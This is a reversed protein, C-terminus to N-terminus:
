GVASPGSTPGDAPPRLAANLLCRRTRIWRNRAMRCCFDARLPVGSICPSGIGPCAVARGVAFVSQCSHLGGNTSEIEGSAPPTPRLSPSARMRLACDNTKAGDARLPLTQGVGSRSGSIDQGGTTRALGACLACMEAQGTVWTADNTCGANRRWRSGGASKAKTSAALPAHSHMDGKYCCCYEGPQPGLILYSVRGHPIGM